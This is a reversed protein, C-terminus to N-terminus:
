EQFGMRDFLGPLEDFGPRAGRLVYHRTESTSVREIWVEVESTTFKVLTPWLFGNPKPGVIRALVEIRGPVAGSVCLTEPLCDPEMRVPISAAPGASIRLWFRFGPLEDTTFAEGPPPPFVGGGGGDGSDALRRAWVGADTVAFLVRPGDSDFPVLVLGMADAPVFGAAFEQWTAGGDTSREPPGSQRVRYQVGTLVPDAIRDEPSNGGRPWGDRARTGLPEYPTRAYFSFTAGGDTSRHLDGDITAYWISPNADDVFRAGETAFGESVSTLEKWTRGGNTSEFLHRDLPDPPCFGITCGDDASADAWAFLTNGTPAPAVRHIRVQGDGASPLDDLFVSWTAGDDRSRYATDGLQLYLPNPNLPDWHLDGHTRFPDLGIRPLGEGVRTWSAGADRSRFLAELMPEDPTPQFYVTAFLVDPRSPVLRFDVVSGRAPGEGTPDFVPDVRRWGTGWDSSAYLRHDRTVAFLRGNARPDAVLGPHQRGVGGPREFFPVIGLPRSDLGANSEQWTAGGDTSRLVGGRETGVLVTGASGPLWEASLARRPGLPTEPLAARSWTAGGDTSRFAGWEGAAVVSGPDAPDVALAVPPEWAVEGTLREGVHSWSAGGDETKFVGIRNGAQDVGAYIVDPDSQSFAIAEATADFNTIDIGNALKQLTAGGDTSLLIGARWVSLLLTGPDAPDVALARVGGTPLVTRRSWTSGADTSRWLADQTTLYVTAPDSLAIEVEGIFRVKAPRGPLAVSEWSAGGDTTLRLGDGTGAFARAPDTPDAAVAFVHITELDGYAARWFAGANTSRFVGGDGVAAWVVGSGAPGASLEEVRAGEPGLGTWADAAAPQATAPAGALALLTIVSLIARASRSLPSSTM